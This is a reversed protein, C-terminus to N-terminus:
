KPRGLLASGAQTVVGGCKVIYDAQEQAKGGDRLRTALSHCSFGNPHQALLVDGDVVFLGHTDQKSMVRVQLVGHSTTVPKLIEPNNSAFISGGIHRGNTPNM